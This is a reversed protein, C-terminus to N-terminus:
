KMVSFILLETLPFFHFCAVPTLPITHSNVCLLFSFVYVLYYTVNYSPHYQECSIRQIQISPGSVMSVLSHIHKPDLGHYLVSLDIETSLAALTAAIDDASENTKRWGLVAVVYLDDSFSVVYLHDFHSTIVQPSFPHHALSSTISKTSSEVAVLIQIM